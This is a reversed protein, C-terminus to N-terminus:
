IFNILCYYIVGVELVVPILFNTLSRKNHFFDKDETNFSLDENTYLDQSYEQDNDEFEKEDFISSSLFNDDDFISSFVDDLKKQNDLLNNLADLDLAATTM